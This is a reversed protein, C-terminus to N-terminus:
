QSLAENALGAISRLQSRAGNRDLYWAAARRVGDHLDVQPVYGLEQRAREITAGSANGLFAVGFRTTPPYLKGRSARAALEGAYGVAYLASYPIHIRPPRAGIAQAIATLFARQSLRRDNSVNYTKGVARGDELALLLAQVVDTVYVLPLTNEGSGVIIATGARVRDATRAFHVHDGPGFFQDPRL